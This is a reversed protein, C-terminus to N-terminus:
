LWLQLEVLDYSHVTFVICIGQLHFLNTNVFYYMQMGVFCLLAFPVNFMAFDGFRVDFAM